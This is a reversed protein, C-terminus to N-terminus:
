HTHSKLEQEAELWDEVERGPTRGRRVFIEYARRRVEDENLVAAEVAGVAAAAPERRVCASETATTSAKVSAPQEMASEVVVEDALRHTRRRPARRAKTEAAASKSSNGTRTRGGSTSKAM